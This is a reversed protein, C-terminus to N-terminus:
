RPQEEREFRPAITRAPQFIGHEQPRRTNGPLESRSEPQPHFGEAQTECQTGNMSATSLGSTSIDAEDGQDGPYSPPIPELTPIIHDPTLDRVAGRRILNRAAQAWHKLYYGDCRVFLDTLRLPSVKALERLIKHEIESETVPFHLLNTSM